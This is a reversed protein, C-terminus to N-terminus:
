IKAKWNKILTELDMKIKYKNQKIWKRTAKFQRKAELFGCSSNMFFKPFSLNSIYAANNKMKHVGNKLFFRLYDLNITKDFIPEQIYSFQLLTTLKTEEGWLWSRLGLDLNQWYKSKIAYDFGGLQIFKKRNYLAINDASFLTNLGDNVVFSEKVAFHKKEVTPIFQEIISNKNSDTLRPIVCFVDDKLIREALNQHIFGPHIDLSNRLVLVYDAEVEAMALNIMEGDTTKELPVIFKVSPYKKALDEVSFNNSDLEVSVISRFNCEMLNEFLADKLHGGSNNLLIVSINLSANKNEIRGGIVTRNIQHEDFTSPIINM